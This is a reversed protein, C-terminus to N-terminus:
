GDMKYNMLIITIFKSFFSIDNIYAFKYTIIYVFAM